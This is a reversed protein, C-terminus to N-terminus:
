RTQSKAWSSKAASMYRNTYTHVHTHTEIYANYKIAEHNNIKSCFM